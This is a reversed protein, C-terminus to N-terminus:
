KETRRMELQKELLISKINVTPMGKSSQRIEIVGFSPPPQSM